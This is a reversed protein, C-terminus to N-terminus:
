TKTKNAFQFFSSTLFLFVLIAKNNSDNSGPKPKNILDSIAIAMMVLMLMLTWSSYTFNLFRIFSNTANSHNNVSFTNALGNACNWFLNSQYFVIAIALIFSATYYLFASLRKTQISFFIVLSLYFLSLNSFKRILHCTNNLKLLDELNVVNCRLAKRIKVKLFVPVAILLAKKSLKINSFTMKNFIAGNQFIYIFETILYILSRNNEM